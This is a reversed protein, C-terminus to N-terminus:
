PILNLDTEQGPTAIALQDGTPVLLGALRLRRLECM